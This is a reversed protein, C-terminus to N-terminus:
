FRNPYATSIWSPTQAAMAIETNTLGIDRAFRPDFQMCQLLDRRTAHNRRWSRLLRRVPAVARSFRGSGCGPVAAPDIALADPRTTM